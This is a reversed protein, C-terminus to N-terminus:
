GLNKISQALVSIFNSADATSASLTWTSNSVSQKLPIVYNESFTGSASLFIIDKITGSITDRLDLRVPFGASNTLKLYVLDNFVGVGGSSIINTQSIGTISTISTIIDTRVFERNGLEAFIQSM